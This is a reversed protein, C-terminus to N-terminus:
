VGVERRFRDTAERRLMQEEWPTCTGKTVCKPCILGMCQKCLGGIDSANVKVPVHKVCNCHECTFTDIEAEVHRVGGEVLTPTDTLIDGVITTYGHPNRM